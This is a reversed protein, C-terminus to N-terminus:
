SNRWFKKGSEKCSRKTFNKDSSDGNKKKTKFTRGHVRKLLEFAGAFIDPIERLEGEGLSIKLFANPFEGPTWESTEGSTAELTVSPCNLNLVHLFIM